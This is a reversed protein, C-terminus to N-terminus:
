EDKPLLHSPTPTSLFQICAPFAPPLYTWRPLHPVTFLFHYIITLSISLALMSQEGDAKCENVQKIRLVTRNLMRLVM